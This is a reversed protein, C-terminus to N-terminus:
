PHSTMSPVFNKTKYQGKFFAEWQHKAESGSPIVHGGSHTIITPNKFMRALAQSSDPSVVGDRDGFVHLSPITYFDHRDFVKSLQTDRATFGGVMIAFNFRFPTSHNLQGHAGANMGCLIGALIAGQSFGFVGDFPGEKAFKDILGQRTREWGEYAVDGGYHGHSRAHWWGYDGHKISPADMFVLEAYPALTSSLSGIQMALTSASGGYGHLCLIRLRQGSTPKIIEHAVHSDHSIHLSAHHAPPSHGYPPTHPKTASHHPRIDSYYSSPPSHDRPPSPPLDKAANNKNFSIRRFKSSLADM